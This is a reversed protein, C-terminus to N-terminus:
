GHRNHGRFGAPHRIYNFVPDIAQEHRGRIGFRQRICDFSNTQRGIQPFLKALRGLGGSTVVRPVADRLLKLANQVESRAIAPISRRCDTECASM